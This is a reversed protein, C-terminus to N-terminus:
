KIFVMKKVSEFGETVSTVPTAIIKYYYIGSALGSVRWIYTHRAATLNGNVLRDIERGLVDYVILSVHSSYPLDFQITTSPNFPNPYNQYLHYSVPINGTAIGPSIALSNVAQYGTSGILLASGTLTDYKLFNAVQIGLGSLGFLEGKKDFAISPTITFGPVGILTSIGTFKDIKYIKNSLAIGWLQGNLPNITIGYLNNIGTNNIFTTDGNTLDFKYLKGGSTACYVDDNLDFAITRIGGVPIDMSPYADGSDANIRVLMSATTGSICGFLENDSPKVCIGTIGTYGSLGVLTGSGTNKDINILAGNSLGGGVAYIKATDVAHIIYGKGTLYISNQPNTIDNSLIVLSDIINGSNTPAYLVNFSSTQNFGLLIPYTVANLLRFQSNYIQINSISLTDEGYNAVTFSLTDSMTGVEHTGFNLTDTLVNLRAGPFPILRVMGAWVGWTNVPTEAYETFMWFNNQDVPDLWIGSYDGWRNRGSSFTKVYNAKGTQLIKSGTLTGPPDTNLRTTYYAGIYETEGSRSYTIAINTDKDVSLAPYFHWFGDMGMAVDEVATDSSVDIKFYRVSSYLNGTGSRITHVGWLFGNRYVPENKISRGGAEILTSSGGLQNANPPSRYTTVSVNVGTMVPNNLPSSIKYLTVFTGTLYPSHCILYYEQATNYFISPRLTSTRTASNNPEKINWLDTWVVPGATNNYLQAKGIIRIRAGDFGGAFRYQNSTLYIAQEDFGVGQYDGWSDTATSGNKNSPLAWNYWTGTPISDDSVSLLYYGRAPTNEQDLWVMIWRKAFHDYSVKPDFAGVGPLVSSFWLDADITMVTNGFKDWVRIRSNDVGIVHTPGVAIYPDPPIYNGPDSFGQFSYVLFPDNGDFAGENIVSPDVFYNSGEPALPPTTNLYDPYLTEPFINRPKRKFVPNAPNYTINEFNGMTVIVGNPVSGNAPGQYLQSYSINFSFFVSLLFLITKKM